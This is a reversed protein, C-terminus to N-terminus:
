SCASSPATPTTSRTPRQRPAHGVLDTRPHFTLGYLEEAAAYVAALVKDVQLHDTLEAEDFSFRERRLIAEVFQWDAATFQAGPNLEAYRAALDAAEGRAKALGAQALPVLMGFIADTTKACGAEAVIAAHNPYGLLTAREARARATRVVVDRTDFDGELARRTSAEFM